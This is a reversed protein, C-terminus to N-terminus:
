WLSKITTLTVVEDPTSGKFIEVYDDIHMKRLAIRCIVHRGCTNIKHSMAQLPDKNYHIPRGTAALMRLLYTHNQMSEKKFDKPVFTLQDDPIFGFSDFCEIGGNHREFVCTWHGHNAKTLYLLVLTKGPGMLDYISLGAAFAEALQTYTMINAYPLWKRMDSDSLSYDM